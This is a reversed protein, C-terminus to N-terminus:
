KKETDKTRGTVMLFGLIFVGIMDLQCLICVPCLVRLLILEQYAIWLCFLLGFTGTYFLLKKKKMVAAAFIVIYGVLGYLPTPLGLTKSVSGSIIADCNVTASINCPQFSPRFFQEWLLFISLTMGFIALIKTYFFVKSESMNIIYVM